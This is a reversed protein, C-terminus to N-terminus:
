DDLSYSLKNKTIKDFLKRLKIIEFFKKRLVGVISPVIYILAVSGFLMLVSVFINHNLIFGFNGGLIKEAVYVHNHIIYVDFAAGSLMILLRKSYKCDSLKVTEFIRFVSMAMILVIPSTYSIAYRINTSLIQYGAINVILLTFACIIYILFYKYNKEYKPPCRKMYAGIVYCVFLWLTSSGFNTIFFDRDFVTPIISLFLVLIFLRHKEITIKQLFQNIFPALSLLPIYCTIYWYRGTISSFLGDYLYKIISTNSPFIFYIIATIIVSYTAVICILDFARYSNFKNKGYGLYGSILAFINVSCFALIELFWMSWYTFSNESALDLIGGKGLLHLLVIGCMAIIRLLDLGYYREKM